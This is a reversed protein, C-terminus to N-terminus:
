EAAVLLVEDASYTKPAEGAIHHYDLSGRL